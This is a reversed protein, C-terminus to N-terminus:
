QVCEPKLANELMATGDFIQLSIEPLCLAIAAIADDGDKPSHLVIKWDSPSGADPPLQAFSPAEGCFDAFVCADLPLALGRGIAKAFAEKCVWLRQFVVADAAAVIQSESPAFFRRAIATGDIGNRPSEVDVGVAVAALAIMVHSECHSMNFHLEPFGVIVPKGETELEFRVTRPDRELYHALVARLLSHSLVFRAADGPRQFTRARSLEDDDLLASASGKLTAVDAFRLSHLHVANARPWFNSPLDSTM